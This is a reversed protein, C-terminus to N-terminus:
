KNYKKQLKAYEDYFDEIQKLDKFEVFSLSDISILKLLERFDNKFSEDNLLVNILEVLDASDKHISSIASFFMEPSKEIITLNNELSPNLILMNEYIKKDVICFDGKNFYVDLVSTSLKASFLEQKLISKYPKNLIKLSLFDLWISYNKVYEANIFVKNKLDKISHINSNKNAILLFQTNKNENNNKFIIPNITIEKILEKNQAYFEPYLVVTNINKKAKLDEILLKQSEYFVVRFDRKYDQNAKQVLNESLRKIRNQNLSNYQNIVIGFSLKSKDQAYLNLILFILLLLPKFIKM